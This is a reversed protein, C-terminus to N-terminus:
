VMKFLYNETNLNGSKKKLEPILTGRRLNKGTLVVDSKSMTILLKYLKCVPANSIFGFRDNGWPGRTLNPDWKVFANKYKLM